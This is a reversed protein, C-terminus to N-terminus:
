VPIPRGERQAFERAAADGYLLAQIRYTEAHAAAPDPEREPASPAPQEHRRTPSSGSQQNRRTDAHQTEKGHTPIGNRYWDIQGPVNDWRYNRSKWAIMAREWKDLDQVSEVIIAQQIDNPRKGWFRVFAAVAPALDKPQAFISVGCTLAQELLPKAYDVPRGIHQGDRMRQAIVGFVASFHGAPHKQSLSRLEDVEHHALPRGIIEEFLREAETRTPAGWDRQDRQTTETYDRNRILLMENQFVPMENQFVPMENQFVPMENQFVPMENQFVPMEEDEVSTEDIAAPVEEDEVSTEDTAAPVEEDPAPPEDTAAPPEGETSPMQFLPLDDETREEPPSPPPTAPTPVDLDIAELDKLSEYCVTYWYESRIKSGRDVSLILGKTELSKLTRWVTSQSWFPFQKTWGEVTNYVWIRGEHRHNSGRLWYHIQQLIIAENLGILVALSPLVQLPHEDILLKSGTTTM